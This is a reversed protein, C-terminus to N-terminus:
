PPFRPSRALLMERGREILVIVAPSLRPFHLHGCRPCAMAEHVAHRETPHGCRSCFGHTRLWEVKQLAAGARQFVETPVLTALVRLGVLATGPPADMDVPLDYATAPRGFLPRLPVQAGALGGPDISLAASLERATPLRPTEGEALLIRDGSFAFHWASDGTM